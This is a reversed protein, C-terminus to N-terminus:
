CLYTTIDVQESKRIYETNLKNISLFIIATQDCPATHCLKYSKRQCMRVPVQWNTVVMSGFSRDVMRVLFVSFLFFQMNLFYDHIVDLPTSPIASLMFLSRARNDNLSNNSMFIPIFTYQHISKHNTHSQPSHPRAPAIFISFM